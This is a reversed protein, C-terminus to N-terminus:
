PNYLLYQERMKIFEQIDKQWSDRIEKESYGKIIQDRLTSTGALKEFFDNFFSEKEPFNEYANLLYGIHLFNQNKHLFAPDQDRLDIGYCLQNKHPPNPAARRSEPTFTFPFSQRPFDPHGYVQFPHDTGRGISVPTGEFFCLGPYLLISTMDPLNPSPIDKVQYFMERNYNGVKIIQIDCTRQNELWGQGNVMQAYEGVTMGHLVPVPHLGVFSSHRTELLPGDTIHGNPNPRDLIIMPVEAASATQMMYTMTSIYTYFRVGVDQIDFLIIDLNKIDEPSPIRNSGYLSIVPLGTISDVSNKVYEGAAAQGRFGHEPSFIKVVDLGASLLTDVLHVGKVKSTHNGLVGIKKNRLLPFYLETQWAGPIVSLNQEKEKTTQANCANFVMGALILLVTASFLNKKM